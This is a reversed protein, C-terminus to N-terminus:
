LRRWSQVITATNQSLEDIPVAITTAMSISWVYGADDIFWRWVARARGCGVQDPDGETVIVAEPRDADLSLTECTVNGLGSQEYIWRARSAVHKSFRRAVAIGRIRESTRTVILRDVGDTGAFSARNLVCSTDGAASAVGERIFREPVSIACGLPALAVERAHPAGPKTIRLRQDLHWRKVSRAISVAHQPFQADHAGDDYEAQSRFQPEENPSLQLMLVSERFGTMQARCLWRAEFLGGQVPVLTHGMVIEKTPQYQMRHLVHLTPGGDADVREIEIVPTWKPDATCPRAESPLKLGTTSPTFMLEFLLRTHRHVDRQLSQAHEIALDLHVNPFFFFWWALGHKPDSFTANTPTEKTLSLFEPPEVTLGLKGSRLDDLLAMARLTDGRVAQRRM